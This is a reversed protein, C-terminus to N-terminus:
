KQQVETMLVTGDAFHAITTYWSGSPVGSLNDDTYTFMTGNSSVLGTEMGRAEWVSADEETNGTTLKKPCYLTHVFCPRDCFVQWGNQVKMWSKNMCYAPSNLGDHDALYKYYDPYVFIPQMFAYLAGILYESEKVFIGTAKIFKGSYSSDYDYELYVKGANNPDTEPYSNELCKQEM